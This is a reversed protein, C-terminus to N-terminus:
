IHFETRLRTTVHVISHVTKNFIQSIYVRVIIKFPTSKFLLMNYAHSTRSNHLIYMQNSKGSYKSSYM